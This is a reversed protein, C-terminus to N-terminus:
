RDIRRLLFGHVDPYEREKCDNKRRGDCKTANEGVDPYEHEKRDNKQRARCNTANEGVPRHPALLCWSGGRPKARAQPSIAHAIRFAAMPALHQVAVSQFVAAGAHAIEASHIGIFLRGV